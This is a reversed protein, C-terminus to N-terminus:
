YWGRAQSHSWAGCPTGYRGQIYGLGWTIQTRANTRWDAGASAMKSGPLAQPIGYASSSPNAATVRWNSEKHWLSELCTWQSSDWGKDAVMAKAIAKAESPSVVSTAPNSVDMTGIAIIEDRPEVLVSRTIVRREAEEGNLLSVSYTTVAEGVRGKQVVVKEGKPISSDEREVTDYKLTEKITDAGTSARAITITMDDGLHEDLGPDVSDGEQLVVGMDLLLDRVTELSTVHDIEQGDILVSVDKVTSIRLIDRGVSDGRSASVEAGSARAGLEELVEGVTLATSTLVQQEGDIELHIQKATRVVVRDGRGVPAGLAPYVHDQDTVTLDQAALADAVTRGFFAAEYVMGNYDLVFPRQYYTYATATVAVMVMILARAVFRVVRNDPLVRM